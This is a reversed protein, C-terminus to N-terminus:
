RCAATLNGRDSCGSSFFSKPALESLTIDVPTGFVTTTSIFSLIGAPSVFRLPGVVDAYDRDAVNTGDASANPYSSLERMLESLAPDATVEIQRRLRAFLHARWEALNVIRPAM